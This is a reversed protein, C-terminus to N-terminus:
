PKAKLHHECYEQGAKSVVFIEGSAQEIFGLKLLANATTSSVLFGSLYHKRPLRVRVYARKRRIVWFPGDLRELDSPLEVLDLLCYKEEISMEIFKPTM